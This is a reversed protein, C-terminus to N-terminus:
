RYGPHSIYFHYYIIMCYCVRLYGFSVHDFWLIKGNNMTGRRRFLELIPEPPVEIRALFQDLEDETLDAIGYQSFTAAIEPQTAM